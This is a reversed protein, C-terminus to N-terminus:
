RWLGSEYDSSMDMIYGYDIRDFASPPEYYYNNDDWEFVDELDDDDPDQYNSKIDGSKTEDSDQQNMLYNRKYEEIEHDTYDEIQECKNQQYSAVLKGLKQNEEQLGSNAIDKYKQRLKSDNIEEALQLAKQWKKQKLLLEVAKEPNKAYDLWTNIANNLNGNKEQVSALRMGENASVWKWGKQTYIETLVKELTKWNECNECLDAFKSLTSSRRYVEEIRQWNEVELLCRVAEKYSDIRCYNDAAKEFDPVKKWELASDLWKEQKECALAINEWNSLKRWCREVEAWNELNTYCRATNEFDSLEEYVTAADLWKEQSECTLAVKEWNSLKRWCNEADSWNSDKEYGVAAIEWYKAAEDFQKAEECILADMRTVDNQYNCRGYIEKAFLYNGEQEYKKASAIKGGPTEDADFFSLIKEYQDTISICKEIRSSQWFAHANEGEYFYLKERARTTCVYL